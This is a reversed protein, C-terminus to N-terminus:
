DMLIGYKNWRTIVTIQQDNKYLVRSKMNGNKYYTIEYGNKEDFEYNTVSEKEGTLYYRIWEGHIQGYFYEVTNILNGNEDWYKAIGHEKDNEKEIVYRIKNNSYYSKDVIQNSCSVLLLIFIYILRM